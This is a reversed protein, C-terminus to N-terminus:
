RDIHAETQKSSAGSNFAKLPIHGRNCSLFGSRSCERNKGGGRGPPVGATAM